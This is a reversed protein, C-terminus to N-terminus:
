GRPMAPHPQAPEAPQPQKPLSLDKGPAGNAAGNAVGVPLPPGNSGGGGLSASAALMQQKAQPLPIGLAEAATPDLALAKEVHGQLHVGFAEIAALKEPSDPQMRLKDMQARHSPFHIKYDDYAGVTVPRGNTLEENEWRLLNTQSYDNEFLPEFSNTTFMEVIQRQRDVPEEKIANYMEMKGAITGLLPSSRIMKVRRFGQVDQQTFTKVLPADTHGAIEAVLGNTANGKILELVINGIDVYATDISLQLGRQLKVATQTLSAIAVGSMNAGTPQGMAADNLGLSEKMKAPLFEFMFKVAEPLQQYTATKPAEVGEKMLYVDKEGDYKMREDCYLPQKKYRTLNTIVASLLDDYSEVMSAVDAAEPHGLSTGDYKMSAIETFPLKGNQIPCRRSWLPVGKLYGFYRGGPVAKCNRHYLHRLIVCDESAMSGSFGMLEFDTDSSPGPAGHIKEALEPFMAALEFRSVPEKIILWNEEELMVDRVTQWPYTRMLKISGSPKKVKAMYPEAAGTEPNQVTLSEGTEPDVAPEMSEILDGLNRDWQCHIGGFGYNQGADAAAFIVEDVKAETVVYDLMKSVLNVQAESAVDLNTAVASYGIRDGMALIIAQRIYPKGLNTRLRLENVGDVDGLQQVGAGASVSDPDLGYKQAYTLRWTKILGKQECAQRYRTELKDAEQVLDADPMTAFYVKSM